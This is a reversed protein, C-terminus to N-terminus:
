IIKKAWYRSFDFLIPGFLLLLRHSFSEAMALQRNRITKKNHQPTEIWTELPALEHL